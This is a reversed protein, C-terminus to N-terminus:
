TGAWVFILVSSCDSWWTFSCRGQALAWRDRELRLAELRGKVEGLDAQMGEVVREFAGTIVHKDHELAQVQLCRWRARADGALSLWLM